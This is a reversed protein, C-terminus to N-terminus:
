KLKPTKPRGYKDLPTGPKSRTCPPVFKGDRTAYPEQYVTGLAALLIASAKIAM